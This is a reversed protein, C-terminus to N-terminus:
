NRNSIFTGSETKLFHIFQIEFTSIERKVIIKDVDFKNIIESITSSLSIGRNVTKELKGNSYFEFYKTKM